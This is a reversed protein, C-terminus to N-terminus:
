WVVMARRNMFEEAKQNGDADNAHVLLGKYTSYRMRNAEYEFVREGADWLYLRCPEIIDERSTLPPLHFKCDHVGTLSHVAGDLLVPIDFGARELLVGYIRIDYNVMPDWIMPQYESRELRDWVKWSVESGRYPEFYNTPKHLYIEELEEEGHQIRLMSYPRSVGFVLTDMTGEDM